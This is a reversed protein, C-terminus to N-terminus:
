FRRLPFRMRFPLLASVWGARFRSLSLSEHMTIALPAADTRVLSRAYFPTDELTQVISTSGGLHAARPARWIPSAPLAQEPHVQTESVVGDASVKLSLNTVEGSRATANYTLQTDDDHHTRSWHWADFAEHLPAAGRNIDFYGRGSWQTAPKQFQVDVRASPCVPWWRHQKDVSLAFERATTFSPTVMVRGTLARRGPATREDIDIVLRGERWQLSSAALSLCQPDRSVQDRRIESMAWRPHPRSYLAVNLACYDMPDAERLHVARKYFPSFVSGVFAIIVLHNALDESTADVYWWQYGRAPVPQSFDPAPSPAGCSAPSDPHQHQRILTM